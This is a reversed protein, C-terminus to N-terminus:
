RLTVVNTAPAGEVIGMLLRAWRELGRAKESARGYHDYHRGTVDGRAHNLVAAVDEAAVGAASLRTAVTRRLDHPTPPDAQWSASEPLIATLRAMATALTSNDVHGRQARSSFVFHSAPGAAELAESVIASALPSLPVYHARRNKSRAAPITWAIPAGSGDFELEARAMGTAKGPRVGTALVLHLALGAM